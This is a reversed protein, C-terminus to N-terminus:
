AKFLASAPPRTWEGPPSRLELSRQSQKWADRWEKSVVKDCCRMANANRGLAATARLDDPEAGGIILDYADSICRSYTHVTSVQMVEAYDVGAQEADSGGVLWLRTRQRVIGSPECLAAGPYRPRVYPRVYPDHRARM